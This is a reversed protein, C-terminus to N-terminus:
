TSADSTQRPKCRLDLARTQLALSVFYPVTAHTDAAFKISLALSYM